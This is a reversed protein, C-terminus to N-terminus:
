VGYIYPIWQNEYKEYKQNKILYYKEHEHYKKIESKLGIFNPSENRMKQKYIHFKALLIVLQVFYTDNNVGFIISEEELNAEIGLERTFWNQINVWFPKVVSCEVFIHYITENQLNCFSCLPNDKIGIKHLLENTGLIRHILRYQFWKLKVDNSISFCKMNVVHWLPKLDPFIQEWKFEYNKVVNRELNFIEYMPRTGKKCNLLLQTSCYIFPRPQVNFSRGWKLVVANVLGRYLTFHPSFNYKGCFDAYSLIYGADDLLDSVVRVGRRYWSKYYVSENNITILPNYWLPALTIENDGCLHRDFLEGMASLTEKWFLNTTEYALIRMFDSGVSLALDFNPVISKFLLSWSSDTIITRRIWTVKLSKIFNHINIMKLGGKAFDQTILKRSVKDPKGCWIYKYLTLELESILNQNRGIPLAAFLHVLKSLLITKIVTIKGIVTLNRKSWTNILRKIENFKEVFNLEFMDILDTTFVIGLVNFTGETWILDYEPCIKDTSGTKSGLWICQTKTINPKLGSYKAFQDLLDLSNKLSRTTGDLYICTDDAYQSLKNSFKDIKIGKIENNNRFLIGLIEVCLDFLYPSIPDGQRCGRGIPFFESFFGHQIVCLKADHNLLKILNVYKSGFNFYRLVEYLYCWSISDFAKEFDVLLLLGPINNQKTYQIIDYLLRTNEGIFRGKIFGKQDEHIIYPLVTKIRNALVASLIKYSINLLTIPRWNKIYERPKNGKPIISLVGQKQTVSLSGNTISYIFSKYLFLGLDPWFFKFFESTYGDSGPAKDNKMNKLAAAVESFEIDSDLTAKDINSLKPVDFDNLLVDLNVANLTNDSNRYLNVYFKKIENLIMKQDTIMENNCDILKIVNKNVYNRKELNCFYRSPSEGEYIWRARARVVSGKIKDERLNELQQTCLTLNNATEPNDDQDYKNKLREIETILSNEENMIKKKRKCCYRITERRINLLLMEFFLQDNITFSILANDIIDIIDRNFPTAVYQLKTNKITEKVVTIYDQEKLVSNNFKWFGKGKIFDNLKIDLTIMSHDTRYGPKISCNEIRSMLENSVLFYDLRAKKVPNKRFWTYCRQNPNYIRWVDAFNFSLIVNRSRSNNDRVYNFCDLDYEQVVNWDGCLISFDCESNNILDQINSYFMPEDNNPGYINFLSVTFSDHDVSLDVTILNGNEDKQTKLIKYDFTSNFLITVGRANNRGFSSTCEFGWQSRIISEDKSTFHTDQLCYIDAKLNRLFDFVDKRKFSDGLGRCNMSVVKVANNM